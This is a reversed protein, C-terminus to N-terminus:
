GGWLSGFDGCQCIKDRGWGEM